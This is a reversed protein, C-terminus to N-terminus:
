RAGGMHVVLAGRDGRVFSAPHEYHNLAAFALRAQLKTMRRVPMYVAFDAARLRVAHKLDNISAAQDHIPRGPFPKNETTYTM